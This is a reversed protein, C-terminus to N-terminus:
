RNKNPRLDILFLVCGVAFLISGVTTWVDGNRVGSVMFILIGILFLIWGGIQLRGEM